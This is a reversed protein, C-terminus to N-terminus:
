RDLIKDINISDNVIRPPCSYASDLIDRSQIYYPTDIKALSFLLHCVNDLMLPKNVADKIQEIVTENGRKFEDSCWIMFPVAYQYRLIQPTITNSIDRFAFDRYDYVEDGHDSFYLMVANENRFHNIIKGVIYDNYRTANDYDAILKRKEITHFPKTQKISDVSYYDFERSHPYRDYYSSHQGMLHFIVLMLSKETTDSQAVFDDILEEDYRFANANIKTFAFKETKSNHLYANLSFDLSEHGSPDYQNDWFFVDYGAKKFVVPFFPYGTWQEGAGISNTSFVNRLVDSTLNYPSYVDTFVFLRGSEEEKMMNPTTCKLYGYLSSHNKIYSEGIVLVISLTDANSRAEKQCAELTSQEAVSLENSGIYLDYLCFLLNSLNDMPRAENTEVWRDVELTTRCLFLSSFRVFSCIGLLTIISVVIGMLKKNLSMTHRKYLEALIILLLAAFFFLVAPITSISFVYQHIFESSEQTNTEGLLLMINPSIKSKFQFHLFVNVTCLITLFFYFFYKAFRGFPLLVILAMLLSYFLSLSTYQIVNSLTWNWYSFVTNQLLLLFILVFFPIDKRLRLLLKHKM